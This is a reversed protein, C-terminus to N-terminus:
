FVARFGATFLFRLFVLFRPLKASKHIGRLESENEHGSWFEERINELVAFCIVRPGAV